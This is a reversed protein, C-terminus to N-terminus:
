EAIVSEKEAPMYLQTFGFFHRDFNIDTDGMEIQWDELLNDMLESLFQPVGSCFQVLATRERDSEYCSPMITIKTEIQSKEDDSLHKDIVARLSTKLVEDPQDRIIGAVRFVTFKRGSAM